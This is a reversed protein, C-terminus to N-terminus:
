LAARSPKFAACVSVTWRGVLLAISSHSWDPPLFIVVTLGVKNGIEGVYSASGTPSAKVTISPPSLTANSSGTCGEGHDPEFSV